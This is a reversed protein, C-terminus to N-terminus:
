ISLEKELFARRDDCGMRWGESLRAYRADFQTGGPGFWNGSKLCSAFVRLAVQIDMDAKEIDEDHLTLVEVSHPPKVECFVFSFSAMEIGIAAACRRVLAAQMDYRHKQIARDLDFGIASTSKLDAYDGSENPVADPRSLLWVGTEEDRAVISQEIAGNLIGQTVLSNAALAKAMGRIAELQDPKLVTRGQARQEALWARCAIRNGQWGAGDIKDPRVIYETLFNDEGLLLHHAARGLILAETEEGDIRDPNLPSTAWYHAPSENFIKRLGSSSISPGDCLKGGHYRSLPVRSYIGPKSLPKGDFPISFPIM